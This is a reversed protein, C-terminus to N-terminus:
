LQPIITYIDNYNNIVMVNYYIIINFLKWMTESYEM